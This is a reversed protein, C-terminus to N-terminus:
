CDIKVVRFAVFTATRNALRKGHSIGVFVLRVSLRKEPSFVWCSSNSDCSTKGSVHMGKHRVSLTHIGEARPTFLIKYHFDELDMVDCLESSGMPGAVSAEM